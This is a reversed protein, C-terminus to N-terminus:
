QVQPIAADTQIVVPLITASPDVPRKVVGLAVGQNVGRGEGVQGGEVGVGVALPHESPPVHIIAVALLLPLELRVPGRLHFPIRGGDCGHAPISHFNIPTPRGVVGLQPRVEQVLGAPLGEDLIAPVVLGEGVHVGLPDELAGVVHPSDGRINLGLPVAHHIVELHQQVLPGRPHRLPLQGLRPTPRVRIHQLNTQRGQGVGLGSGM